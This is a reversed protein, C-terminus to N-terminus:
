GLRTSALIRLSPLQEEMTASRSRISTVVERSTNVDEILNLEMSDIRTQRLPPQCMRPSLLIQCDMKLSTQISALGIVRM